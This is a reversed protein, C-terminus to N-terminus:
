RSLSPVVLDVGGDEDDSMELDVDGREGDRSLSVAVPDDRVGGIQGTPEAASVARATPNDADLTPASTTAKSLVIRRRKHAPEAPDMGRTDACSPTLQAASAAVQQAALRLLEKMEAMDREHQRHSIESQQRLRENELRLRELEQGQANGEGIDQKQRKTSPEEVPRKKADKFGFLSNLNAFQRYGRRVLKRCQADTPRYQRDQPVYGNRM